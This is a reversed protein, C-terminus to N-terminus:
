ACRYVDALISKKVSNAVSVGAADCIDGVQIPCLIEDESRFDVQLPFFVDVDDGAVAFEMSGMSNVGGSVEDITWCLLGQHPDHRYTGCDITEVLPPDSTGLALAIKVDRLVLDSRLTCEYELNVTISGDGTEEPWCNITIPAVDANSRTWRLIGMPRALPFGKKPDKAQLISKSEYLSKNIKPHTGFSWENKLLNSIPILVKQGAETNPTVTLTGKLEATEIVGERSIACSIKEELNITLPTSPAQKTPVAAGFLNSQKGKINTFNDEAAMAAMLSDKHTTKGAGLKMGKLPVRPVKPEDETVNLKSSTLRPNYSNMDQSDFMGDGFGGQSGGMGGGGFGVMGGQPGAPQGAGQQQFMNNKMQQLQRKQIEQQKSKMTKAAEEKKKEEVMDFMLEEHSEMLLNTRITSLTVKDERYGGATLVEDFAFILEFAKDHILEERLGGAVDPVVKALLRLTGLDEVINSTKTTILMLYVANELPQYVYRVTDTEVFTHQKAASTNSSNLKPFAALLGEIRMRTMEVYQRSVLPKGGRTCISASLIVM